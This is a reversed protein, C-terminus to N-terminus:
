GNEPAPICHSQYLCIDNPICSSFIPIYYSISDLAHHPSTEFDGVWPNVRLNHCNECPFFQELCSKQRGVGVVIACRPPQSPIYVFLDKVSLIILIYIYIYFGNNKMYPYPDIGILVMKLPIFMWKGAIQLNVLPVLNQCVAMDKKDNKWPFFGTELEAAPTTPAIYPLRSPAQCSAPAPSTGSNRVLNPPEAFQFIMTKIRQTNLQKGYFIVM